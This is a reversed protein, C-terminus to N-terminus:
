RSPRSDFIYIAASRRAHRHCTRYQSRPHRPQHGRKRPKSNHKPKPSPKTLTSVPRTSFKKLSRAIGPLRRSDDLLQKLADQGRLSYYDVAVEAQATLRANELDAASAQAASVQARVQNRVRGWLDPVWTRRVSAYYETFSSRSTRPRQHQGHQAIASASVYTIAPGVTVTPYYSPARKSVLARAAIYSRWPRSSIRTALNRGTRGARETRSRQVDGVLQRQPRRRVTSRSELRRNPYDAPTLEKYAAPAAASPRQYKPGVTCGGLLCCRCRACRHQAPSARVVITTCHNSKRNKNM